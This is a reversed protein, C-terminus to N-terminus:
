QSDDRAPQSPPTGPQYPTVKAEAGPRAKQVGRVIVRAGPQLGTNVLVQEGVRDGTELNRRQVVNSDNVTFVYTGRQDVQLAAQPIMLGERPEKLQVEAQVYLGPRLIDNPNPMGARVEVTGTAADVRNSVYDINGTHPYRKGNPMILAVKFDEPRVRADPGQTTLLLREPVQFVVEMGEKGVLTTLPGSNPGVVDGVAPRARGLRGAQPAKITTYELDVQASELAAKAAEVAAEAELKRAELSDFESASIYGDKVLKEARSFNRSASTRNAEAQALEARARSVAAKYPAPDIEFLPTGAEVEDGERFHIAVLKGSVEASIAVDSKSDIHANFTRNPYYPQVRAETVFVEPPPKTPTPKDECGSLLVPAALLGTLIVRRLM